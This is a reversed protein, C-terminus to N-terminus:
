RCYCVLGCIHFGFAFLSRLQGSVQSAGLLFVESFLYFLYIVYCLILKFITVMGHLLPCHLQLRLAAQTAGQSGHPHRMNLPRLGIQSCRGVTKCTM